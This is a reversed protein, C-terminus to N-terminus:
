VRKITFEITGDPATYKGNASDVLGDARNITANTRVRRNKSNDPKEGDIALNGDFTVSWTSSSGEAVRGLGQFRVVDNYAPSTIPQWKGHPLSADPLWFSLLPLAYPLLDGRFSLGELFGSKRADVASAGFPGSSANNGAVSSVLDSMVFQIPIAIDRKLEEAKEEKTLPKTPLRRLLMKYDRKASETGTTVIEVEYKVKAREGITRMIEPKPAPDPEQM